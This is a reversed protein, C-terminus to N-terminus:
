AELLFSKLKALAKSRHSISNKQEKTMQAFSLENNCENHNDSSLANPIFICDWGFTQPGCPHEAIRGLCHGEFLRPETWGKTMLAFICSAVAGHVNSCSSPSPISQCASEEDTKFGDLMRCLGENGMAQLFWKIYPGPLGGGLADFSLGTDETLVYFQEEGQKEHHQPPNNRLYEYATMCKHKAIQQSTGQIEMLDIPIVKIEIDSVKCHNSGDASSSNITYFANNSITSGFMLSRLEIAKNPNGSVFYVTKESTM